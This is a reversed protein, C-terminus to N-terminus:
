QVVENIKSETSELIERSKSKTVMEVFEAEHDRAFATVQQLDALLLQEIVVNRIQHSPCEHKGKKRYTACVFHEKDHEWDRSRVQYLKQGCDACYVMGFLIPM